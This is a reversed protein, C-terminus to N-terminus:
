KTEQRHVATLLHARRLLALIDQELTCLDAALTMDRASFVIDWGPSLETLATRLAESMLRKLYNREVARKSTRKSVVFGIRLQAVDNPTWAL